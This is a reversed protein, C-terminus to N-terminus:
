FTIGVFVRGSLVLLGMVIVYLCNRCCLYLFGWPLYCYSNKPIFSFFTSFLYRCDMQVCVSFLPDVFMFVCCMFLLFHSEFRSYVLLFPQLIPLGLVFSQHLSHMHWFFVLSIFWFIVVINLTDPSSFNHRCYKGSFPNFLKLRQQAVFM